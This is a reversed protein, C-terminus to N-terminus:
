PEDNLGAARLRRQLEAAFTQTWILERVTQEYHGYVSLSADAFGSAAPLGALSQESRACVALYYLPEAQVGDVIAEPMLTQASWDGKGPDMRWLLSQSLVRQGYLRWVPFHRGLLAEFEHRYLERVHHPNRYDRQDSYNRRDPTSVLLLGEPKLVRALGALLADHDALHELTEFSVVLDFCATALEDLKTADGQRFELKPAAYRHRAHAVAAACADIGLVSAAEGALLAAGYGEGCAIDLVRRGGALERAFAYRHWHEYAMERPQDPHYREGTFALPQPDSM